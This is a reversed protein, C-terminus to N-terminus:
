RINPNLACNTSAVEGLINWNYSGFLVIILKNFSLYLYLFILSM